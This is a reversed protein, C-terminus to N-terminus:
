RDAFGNWQVQTYSNGLEVYPDYSNVTKNMVHGDAFLINLKSGHRLGDPNGMRKTTSESFSYGFRHCGFHGDNYAYTQRADMIAYMKSPQKIDSTHLASWAVSANTNVGRRYRGSGYTEYSASLGVRRTVYIDLGFAFGTKNGTQEFDDCDFRSWCPGLFLGIADPWLKKTGVIENIVSFTLTAYTETYDFDRGGM